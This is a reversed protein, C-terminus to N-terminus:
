IKNIREELAAEIDIDNSLCGFISKLKETKPNTLLAVVKGSKTIYIDELKSLKLYKGFSKRFDTITITM